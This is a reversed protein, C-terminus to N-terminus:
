TLYVNVVGYNEGDITVSAIATPTTLVPDVCVFWNKPPTIANGPETFDLSDANSNPPNAIM